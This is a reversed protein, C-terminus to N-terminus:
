GRRRLWRLFQAMDPAEPSEFSLREGRAPHDFAISHAHLFQREVPPADPPIPRGAAARTRYVTDGVIPHGLHALHVRIQHTRGTKPLLRLHAFDGFRELVEYTTQAEKGRERAVAMRDPKREDRGIPGDIVDADFRPEGHVIARYEKEVTRARFQARLSAMAAETRAIMLIGSTDRDLRHVIGPRDEGQLRPLDAGYRALVADAVTTGPPCNENPHVAVGPPKYVVVVAADEYLVRIPVDEAALVTAPEDPLSVRIRDGASVPTGARKVERGEVTVLGREILDRLRVRSVGPLLDRLARDIRVGALTEPVAVEVEKTEV